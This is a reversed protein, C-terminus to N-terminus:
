PRAPTDPVVPTDPKGPEDPRGPQAPTDTTAEEAINQGFDVGEDQPAGSTAEDAIGQGAEEIPAEDEAPVAEVPAENIEAEIIETAADPLGPVDIINAAHAGGVSAAAIATGLVMKGVTTAVFAGVGTLLKNSRTPRFPVAETTQPLPAVNLFEVLSSNPEVMPTAAYEALLEGVLECVRAPPLPLDSLEDMLKNTLEEAHM